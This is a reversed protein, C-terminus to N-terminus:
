SLLNRSVPLCGLVYTTLSRVSFTAPELGASRAGSIGRNAPFIHVPRKEEGADQKRRVVVPVEADTTEFTVRLADANGVFGISRWTYYFERMYESPGEKGGRREVM